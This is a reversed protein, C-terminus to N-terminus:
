FCLFSAWKGVGVIHFMCLEKFDYFISREERKISLFISFILPLLM